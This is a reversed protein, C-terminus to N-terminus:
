DVSTSRPLRLTDPSTRGSEGPVNDREVAALLHTAQANSGGVPLNM